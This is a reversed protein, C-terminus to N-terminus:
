APAHDPVEPRALLALGGLLMRVEQGDGALPMVLREYYRYERGYWPAYQQSYRPQRSAVVSQHADIIVPGHEGYTERDDLYMGTADRGALRCVTTGVLRFRFRLPDRQVDILFIQPLIDPIETPDIDRRSPLRDGACKSRWYEYLRRLKPCRIRAVGVPDPAGQGALFVPSIGDPASVDHRPNGFSAADDSRDTLWVNFKRELKKM